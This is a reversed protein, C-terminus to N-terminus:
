KFTHRVKLLKKRTEKEELGNLKVQRKQNAM